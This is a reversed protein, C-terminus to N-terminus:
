QINSFIKYMVDYNTLVIDYSALEEATTNKEKRDKVGQYYTYSLSPAHLRIEAEWQHSITSPTIILTTGTQLLGNESKTQPSTKRHLLILALMSCVHVILM